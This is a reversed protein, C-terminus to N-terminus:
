PISPPGTGPCHGPAQDLTGRGGGGPRRLAPGPALKGPRNERPILVVELGGPPMPRRRLRTNGTSACILARAGAEAAKSVAM